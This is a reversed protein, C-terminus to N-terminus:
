LSKNVIKELEVMRKELEDLRQSLKRHIELILEKNKMIDDQFQQM